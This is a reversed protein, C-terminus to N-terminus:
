DKNVLKKLDGNKHHFHLFATLGIMVDILLVIWAYKRMPTFVMITFLLYLMGHIPRLDNWWIKDGFTEPGTTRTGSIYRYIFGISIFLAVIGLLHQITESSYKAIFVLLIRVGICGILFLLMRKQIEKM